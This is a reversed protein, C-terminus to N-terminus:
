KAINAVLCLHTHGVKYELWICAHQYGISLKGLRSPHFASNIETTPSMGLHYASHMMMM